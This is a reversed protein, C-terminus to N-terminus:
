GLGGIVPLVLQCPVPRPHKPDLANLVLAATTRDAVMQTHDSLDIPCIDQLVHNTMGPEIGSTFPVVLEDVRTLINTYTVGPTAVGGKRIANVFETGPALQGCAVCLPTSEDGKGFLLTFIKSAEAVATGHWVAGISVYKDVKAAGGLYKVYWAPMITGQSHGLVDVKKAGTSALVKDVFTRMIAAGDQMRALGGIVSTESNNGDAAGYNFAYVCYGSNALLPAFTQWNNIATSFTGHVLVVPNPHAATPRCTWDNAGPLKGTASATVVGTLFSYPVPLPKGTGPTSAGSPAFQLGMALVLTLLVLMRRM